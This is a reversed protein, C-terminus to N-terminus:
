IFYVEGSDTFAKEWKAPLPGLGDDEEQQESKQEYFGAGGGNVPPPQLQQQQQQNHNHHHHHHHHQHQQQQQQQHHIGNNPSMMLSDPVDTGNDGNVGMKSSLDKGDPKATPGAGGNMPPGSENM